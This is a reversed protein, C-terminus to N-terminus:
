EIITIVSEDSGPTGNCRIKPISDGVLDKLAQTLHKRGIEGFWHKNQLMLEYHLEERTFPRNAPLALIAKKLKNVKDAFIQKKTVESALFSMQRTIQEKYEETGRQFAEEVGNVINSALTAAKPHACAFILHYKRQGGLSIIPYAAAFGAKKGFKQFTQELQEIYIQVIINVREDPTNGKALRMQLAGMDKIGMFSQLTSLQPESM